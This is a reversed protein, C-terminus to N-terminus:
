SNFCTHLCLFHFTENNRPRWRLRKLMSGVHLLSFHIQLIQSVCFFSTLKKTCRLFSKKKQCTTINKIIDAFSGGPFNRGMLSGGGRFIGVRFIGMWFIGVQLIGLWTKLCEWELKRIKQKKMITLTIM